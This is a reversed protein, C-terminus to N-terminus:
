EEYILALVGKRLSGLDEAEVAELLEKGIRVIERTGSEDTWRMRSYFIIHVGFHIAFIARDHQNLLRNAIYAKLFAEFLGRGGHFRDLLWADGAFRAADTAGNGVRVNEWDLVTMEPARLETKEVEVNPNADEVQINPLWFDGHCLCTKSDEAETGFRENIREGLAPDFGYQKLVSAIGNYTYSFTNGAFDNTDFQKRLSDFTNTDSTTTHLAALWVGLRRGLLPINVLTDNKYCEKLDKLGADSMVIVHQEPLYHHVQPVHVHHEEMQPLIDPLMALATHEYRMREIPLPIDPMVRIYPEAHKIITRRGLLTTNRWCFNASGGSLAVVEYTPVGKSSLFQRIELDTTIAM